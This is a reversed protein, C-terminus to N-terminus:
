WTISLRQVTIVCCRSLSLRPKDSQHYVQGFLPLLQFLSWAQQSVGVYIYALMRPKALGHSFDHIM